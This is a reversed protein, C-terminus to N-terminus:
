DFDENIRIDMNAGSGYGCLRIRSVTTSPRQPCTITINGSSDFTGTWNAKGLGTCFAFTDPGGNYTSSNFATPTMTVNSANSHTNSRFDAGKIRLTSPWTTFYTDIPIELAVYGTASKFSGDGTGVRTNDQYGIINILNGSLSAQSASATIIINGTVNSITISQNNYATSTIDIGGMTITVTNITYGSIPTLTASYSAGENVNTVGNSTINTLNNTVTYTTINGWPYYEDIIPDNFSIFLHEGSGKLSFRIAREASLMYQTAFTTSMTLRYYETGLKEVASVWAGVFGNTDTGRQGWSFSYGSENFVIWRSYSTDDIDAGRIYIYSVQDPKPIHIMGTAVYGTANGVNSGSAYKDDMYGTDNFITSGDTTTSLPVLNTPEIKVAEVTIGYSATYGGDNTTVTITANGIAVATIVGNSVTAVATNSSTWTVNKNTANEPSVTATLSKTDGVTLTGSNEDLTVGTVAVTNEGWYVERDYGAGYNIAYAKQESPNIVIVCFATDKGTGSIKSQTDGPTGFEIGYYEPASNNGYENTRVFNTCPLAIRKVNYAM